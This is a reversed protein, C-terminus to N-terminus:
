LKGDAEPIQLPSRLPDYDCVRGSSQATLTTLSLVLLSLISSVSPLVGGAPEVCLGATPVGEDDRISALLRSPSVQQHRYRLPCTGDRRRPKGSSPRLTLVLPPFSFLLTRVHSQTFRKGQRLDSLAGEAGQPAATRLLNKGNIDKFVEYHGPEVDEVNRFTKLPENNETGRFLYAQIGGHENFVDLGADEKPDIVDPEDSHPDLPDDAPLTDFDNADCSTSAPPPCDPPSPIPPSSSSSTSQAPSAALTTTLIPNSRTFLFDV